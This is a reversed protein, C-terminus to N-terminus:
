LGSTRCTKAFFIYQISSKGHRMICLLRFTSFSPYLAVSVTAKSEKTRTNSYHTMSFNEFDSTMSVVSNLHHDRQKCM